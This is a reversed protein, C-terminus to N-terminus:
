PYIEKKRDNTPYREMVYRQYLEESVGGQRILEAYFEGSHKVTREQTSFNVHVLGFRASEGEAWEFNDCFCWHYYREIPLGSNVLEKLHEYIFRSRFLDQADCTGNETIYIPRPLLDYMKQASEVIGHPYIEWGLDNVSAHSAVGDAMGSVTSRSYYNIGHFDCWAGRRISPHRRVPFSVDGLCMARSLGGQFAKEAFSACLRHWPNKPDAPQFVRLHNAFGVRTDTFGMERRVRHIMRYGEIHCATMATLVTQYAPLSKKGPPWDGMFYGNLAYVNPENLTIYESALEGFARVVKEAFRLYIAVCDPREFGGSREFWTPNTFHHLTVLPRIGSAVIASLEERYHSLASEGFKGEEPEIRSWEVGFRYIQIGMDNMLALDEQWRDWHDNAVVPSTGDKTHGQCAWDYWSNNVDGGEIQTAATSVGLLFPIKLEHM